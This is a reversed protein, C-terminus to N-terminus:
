FQEAKTLFQETKYVPTTQNNKKSIGLDEMVPAIPFNDGTNIGPISFDEM